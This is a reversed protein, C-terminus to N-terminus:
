EKYALRNVNLRQQLLQISKDLKANLSQYGDKYAQPVYMAVDTDSDMAQTFIGKNSAKAKLKELMQYKEIAANLAKLKAHLVSLEEKKEPEVQPEPQNWGAPAIPKQTLQPFRQEMDRQWAALEEQEKQKLLEKAKLLASISKDDLSEKIFEISKM